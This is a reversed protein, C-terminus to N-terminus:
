EPQSTITSDSSALSLFLGAVGFSNAVSYDGVYALYNGPPAYLGVPSALGALFATWVTPSLTMADTGPHRCPLVSVVSGSVDCSQTSSVRRSVVVNM